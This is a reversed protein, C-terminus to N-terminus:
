GDIPVRLRVSTGEGPSSEVLLRGGIATARERMSSLGIGSATESGFGRGDDSVGIVLDGGEVKLTVLVKEAGSHRRANTLAEQIVRLLETGVTGSLASPFGEDVELRIECDRVMAQNTKVLAGVLEPFTRERQDELRLDNVADRLGQGARRVADIAKQLQRELTPDDVEMRILGMSAASYSLDQLVGDHLDRAIRRREAERIERLAEEIKKRESIDWFYVSVGESSPYARGAIWTGLFPSIAEFETTVQETMARVIERFSESDVSQPFMDRINKGLLEERPRGWLQEARRNVYSFREERDLTFFADNISELINVTQERATEAEARAAREQILLREREEEARRRGAREEAESVARRVAPVLRELRQKLVYDTAGNKLAEIAREEGIAGSVLIFPIEPRMENALELASLGDFAPLSYDSLILDYGGSQLAAVFDARTQVQAMDCPIGGETLRAYILDADLPDDELDLIRLM